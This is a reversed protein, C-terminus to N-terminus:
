GRDVREASVVEGNDDEYITLNIIDDPSNKFGRRVYNTGGDTFITKCKCWVFDHRHKSEIVDGCKACKCINRLIKKM